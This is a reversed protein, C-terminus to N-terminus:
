TKDQSFSQADRRTGDQQQNAEDRGTGDQALGLRSWSRALDLNQKKVSTPFVLLINVFIVIFKNTLPGGAILSM